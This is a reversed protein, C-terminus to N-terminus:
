MKEALQKSEAEKVNSNNEFDFSKFYFIIFNIM